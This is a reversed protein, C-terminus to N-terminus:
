LIEFKVEYKIIIENLGVSIIIIVCSGIFEKKKRTWKTM